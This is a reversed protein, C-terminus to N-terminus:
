HNFELSVNQGGFYFQEFNVIKLSEGNLELKVENSSQSGLVIKGGMSEFEGLSLGFEFTDDGRGGSVTGDGGFGDIKIKDKGTGMKIDVGGSLNSTAIEDSGNGTRIDGGVIGYSKSGNAYATIKDARSGTLIKGDKNNIAIAIDTANATATISDVGRGLDIYGNENNIAIAKDEVQAIADILGIALVSNEPSAAALIAIEADARVTSFSNATAGINDRGIGTKVEGNKNNLGTAVVEAKALSATYGVAVAQLGDSMPEQAVAAAIATVNLTATAEASVATVVEGSVTDSGGGTSLIGTNKIGNAIAKIEIAALSSSIASANVTNAIAIAQTATQTTASAVAVATGTVLDRGRNTYINGNNIIGDAYLSAQTIFESSSVPNIGQNIDLSASEAAISVDFNALSIGIIEDGGRLTRVDSGTPNYITKRPNVIDKGNTFYYQSLDFFDNSMVLEKGEILWKKDAKKIQIGSVELGNIKKRYLILSLILLTPM